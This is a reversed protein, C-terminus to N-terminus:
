CILLVGPMTWEYHILVGLGQIASDRKAPDENNLKKEHEDVPLHQWDTQRFAEKLVALEVNEATLEGKKPLGRCSKAWFVTKM